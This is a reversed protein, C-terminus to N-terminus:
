VFIGEIPCHTNPIGNDQFYMDWAHRLCAHMADYADNNHKLWTETFRRHPPVHAEWTAHKPSRWIYSNPPLYLKAEAQTIPKEGKPQLIRPFRLRYLPHANSDITPVTGGHLHKVKLKSFPFCICIYFGQPSGLSNFSLISM